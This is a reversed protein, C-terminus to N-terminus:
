DELRVLSIEIRRNIARNEASDNPRLPKFEGYGIASLRSPPVGKEQLYRLVSFARAASLEWNTKFPSNRGLPQDDSHGEIQIPNPVKKLAEALRGLPPFATPKLEARGSAFLVPDGFTIRMRNEKIDLKAIQDLAYADISNADKKEDVKSGFSAATVKGAFQSEVAQETATNRKSSVFMLLFFFAVCSMLNAYVTSWMTAWHENNGADELELKM